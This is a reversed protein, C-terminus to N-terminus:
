HEIPEGSCHTQKWATRAIAQYRDGTHLDVLLEAVWDGTPEQDQHDGAEDPGDHTSLWVRGGDRRRQVM